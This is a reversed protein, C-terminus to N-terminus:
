DNCYFYRDLYRNSLELGYGKNMLHDRMTLWSDLTVGVRYGTQKVSARLVLLESATM